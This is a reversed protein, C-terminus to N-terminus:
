CKKWALEMLLEEMDTFIKSIIDILYGKGIAGFDLVHPRKSTLVPHDYIFVDDEKPIKSISKISKLTYNYDYGLEELTSGILLTIKGKTIQYFKKYLIFLDKADAPFEYDGKPNEKIKWILSDKRFRSYTKDFIEIRDLIQKKILAVDSNSPVDLCDIVWSTGIADFEFKFKQLM